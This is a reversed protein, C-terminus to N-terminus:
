VMLLINKFRLMVLKIELFKNVKKIMTNIFVKNMEQYLVVMNIMNWLLDGNMKIM